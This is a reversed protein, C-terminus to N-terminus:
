NSTVTSIRYFYSVDSAFSFKPKRKLTEPAMWRLPIQVKVDVNSNDAKLDKNPQSLGFDSIKVVGDKSILCNRAALDRHTYHHQHLYNMGKAAEYCYLVREGTSVTSAAKILHDLLNGGPCFEIIIMIPPENLVM